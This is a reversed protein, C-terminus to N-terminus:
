AAVALRELCDMLTTPMKLLTSVHKAAGRAIAEKPMGFVVCSHEDEAITEAGAHRLALLGEAGDSGMGTLIAAVIPVNKLKAASNFLVDVAPRQYHVPPGGNLAIRIQLGERALVMHHDGPAVYVRGSTVVEGGAAERVELPTVRNLREAFSRTFVPPMHQVILIPPMDAPLRTLVAEIAQTGGTSAGILIMSQSPRRGAAMVPGPAPRPASTTAPPKGPQFRVPSQRLMRIRRVIQDAVEGVSGPGGPKAIVDIAGLRLAEVSSASGQQTLSSVIIVPMPRHQMVRALFSLGDMRPMEIDLTLVDPEHRLILDRAMFPDSAAGVVEIDPAQRLADSLLKRVVASDDVVLVRIPKVPSAQGIVTM